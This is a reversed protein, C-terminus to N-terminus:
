PAATDEAMARFAKVLSMMQSLSLPEDSALLYAPRTIGGRGAKNHVRVALLNSQGARLLETVQEAFPLDWISDVPLGTSEPTHEFASQGNLYVWAQEDVTSFYLYFHKNDATRPVDFRARYWSYGTYDAFGQSEYGVGEGISITAWQGDDFDEAFWQEEVGQDDPDTAFQWETPAPVVTVRELLDLTEASPPRESNDSIDANNLTNNAIVIDRSEAGITIGVKRPGEGRVTNGV